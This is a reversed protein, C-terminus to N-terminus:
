KCFNDFNQSSGNFANIDIFTEKGNYGDLKEHDSYQWFTWNKNDPLSPKAFVDRIWISYEEYGNSLYLKYSKMTAYIIPKKGYYNELESLLDNLIKATQEKNQPHNNYKGYFEIDVVPPLNGDIKPVINIFNKAQSIGDSDYSFFHYAGIKLNTKLSNGWNYKFKEDQFTSGETAKIFAFDINQSALVQWDIEGQFSSIDVGRVPYASKSPNNFWIVGNLLLIGIIFVIAIISLITTIVVKKNKMNVNLELFLHFIVEV